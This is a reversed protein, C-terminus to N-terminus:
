FANVNETSQSEGVSGIKLGNPTVAIRLVTDAALGNGAALMLNGAADPPCEFTYNPGVVRVTRVFRPTDFLDNPQCLRRRFLPDGVIDVRIARVTREPQGCSAPVSINTTRLVVGDSGVLWVDGVFLEGTELLFGRVGVEPTPIVCTAAFESGEQAFEHRGVGWSQFIGLRTSESVIVGAPRGYRDVFVVEDPPDVLSFTASALAKDFPDGLEMVANQHDLTVAALYVGAKAGIPYLAADLFTGEVLVRGDLATMTAQEALPYKTPENQRRWEPFLIQAM